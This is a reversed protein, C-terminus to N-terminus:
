LCEKVVWASGSLIYNISGYVKAKNFSRINMLIDYHILQVYGMM